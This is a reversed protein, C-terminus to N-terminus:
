AAGEEGAWAARALMVATALAILAMVWAGAPSPPVGGGMSPMRMSEAGGLTIRAVALARLAVLVALIRTLDRRSLIWREFWPRRTWLLWPIGVALLAGLGFWPVLPGRAPGITLQLYLATVWYIVGYVLYTGAAHRFRSDHAAAM